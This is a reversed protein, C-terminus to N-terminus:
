ADHPPETPEPDLMYPQLVFYHGVMFLIAMATLGFLKFNVWASESLTYAVVLNAIGSVLFFIVWALNLKRWAHRPMDMHKEFMAQVLSKERFFPALAFGLALIWNVLTPKWKIFVPDHLALTMGGFIMVALLTLLTSRELKKKWVYLVLAQAVCAVMLVLTAFYIDRIKYAAFFLIVPLLDVFLKM